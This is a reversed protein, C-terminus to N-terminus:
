ALMLETPKSCGRITDLEFALDNAYAGKRDTDVGLFKVLAELLLLNLVTDCCQLALELANLENNTDVSKVVYLTDRLLEMSKFYEEGLM